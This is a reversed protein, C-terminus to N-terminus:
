RRVGRGARERVSPRPGLATAAAREMPDAVRGAEAHQRQGDQLYWFCHIGLRRHPGAARRAGRADAGCVHVRDADRHPVPGPPRHRAKALHPRAHRRKRPEGPHQWQGQRWRRRSDQHLLHPRGDGLAGVRCGQGRLGGPVRALLLRLAAAAHHLQHHGHRHHHGDPRPRWGVRGLGQGGHWLHVVRWDLGGDPLRCDLRAPRHRPQGVLAQPLQVRLFGRCRVDDVRM